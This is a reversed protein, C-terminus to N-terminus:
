EKDAGERLWDGDKVLTKHFFPQIRQQCHYITDPIDKVLRGTINGHSLSSLLCKEM